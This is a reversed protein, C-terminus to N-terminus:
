MNQIVMLTHKNASFSFVMFIQLFDFIIYARPLHYLKTKSLEDIPGKNNSIPLKFTSQELLNKYLPDTDMNTAPAPVPEPVTAPVTAPVTSM